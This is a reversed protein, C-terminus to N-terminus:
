RQLYGGAQQVFASVDFEAANPSYVVESDPIVQEAPGNAGLRRPIILLTDPDLLVADAPLAGGSLAIDEPLVGFRVAVTRLADGPQSRYAISESGAGVSL